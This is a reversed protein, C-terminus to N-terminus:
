TWTCLSYNKKKCPTKGDDYTIDMNWIIGKSYVNTSIKYFIVNNSLVKSFSANYIGKYDLCIIPKSKLENYKNDDLYLQRMYRGNRLRHYGYYELIIDIIEKPLKLSEILNHMKYHLIFYM